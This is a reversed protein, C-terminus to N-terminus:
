LLMSFRPFLENKPKNFYYNFKREQKIKKRREFIKKQELKKAEEYEYCKENLILEFDSNIRERGIDNLLFKIEKPHCNRMRKGSGCYCDHHGKYKGKNIYNLFSIIREDSILLTERYFQLVGKYGHERQGYPVKNFKKYYTYSYLYPIIYFDIFDSIKANKYKKLEVYIETDCALCLVDDSNKHFDNDIIKEVDKVIPLEKPYNFPIFLSIYFDGTLTIKKYTHNLEINGYFTYGDKQKFGVLNHKENIEQIESEINYM